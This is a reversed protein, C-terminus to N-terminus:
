KSRPSEDRIGISGIFGVSTNFDSNLGLTPAVRASSGLGPCLILWSVDGLSM